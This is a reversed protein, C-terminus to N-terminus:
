GAVMAHLIVSRVFKCIKKRQPTLSERSLEVMKTSLMHPRAQIRYIELIKHNVWKEHLESILQAMKFDHGIGGWDQKGANYISHNSCVRFPQDEGFM